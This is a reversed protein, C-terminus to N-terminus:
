EEEKISKGTVALFVTDMKGKIVEYDNFVLPYKNILETAVSLSYESDGLVLREEYVKGNLAKFENISFSKKNKVKFM